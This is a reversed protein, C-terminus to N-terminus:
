GNKNKKNEDILEVFSASIIGTPVAVVGIGILAIVSGFIKGGFTVPYIEEVVPPRVYYLGYELNSISKQSKYCITQLPLERGEYLSKYIEINNESGKPNWTDGEQQCFGKGGYIHRNWFPKDNGM